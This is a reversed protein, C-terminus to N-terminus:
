LEAKDARRACAIEIALECAAVVLNDYGRIASCFSGRGRIEGVGGNRAPDIRIRGAARKNRDASLLPM